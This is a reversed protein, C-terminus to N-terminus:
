QAPYARSLLCGSYGECSRNRFRFLLQIGENVVHVAVNNSQFSHVICGGSICRGIEQASQM